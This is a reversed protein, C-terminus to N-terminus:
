CLMGRGEMAKLMYESPCIHVSIKAINKHNIEQREDVEQKTKWKSNYGNVEHAPMWILWQAEIGHGALIASLIRLM